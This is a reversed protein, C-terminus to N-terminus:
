VPWIYPLDHPVNWGFKSYWEPNKRLLNSKHSDHFQENSLWAPRPHNLMPIQLKDLCTDKFGRNRWELCIAEAYDTLAGDFGRWMKVAPHNYWPTKRYIFENTNRDNWEQEECREWKPLKYIKPRFAKQYPGFQLTELIQLCEVRQKGLRKSDLVRASQSFDPYPLFTQM